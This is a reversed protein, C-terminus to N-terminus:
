SYSLVIYTVERKILKKYYLLRNKSSMYYIHSNRNYKYQLIDASETVFSIVSDILRGASTVSSEHLSSNM